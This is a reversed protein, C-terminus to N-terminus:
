SSVSDPSVPAVAVPRVFAADSLKLPKGGTRKKKSKHKKKPPEKSDDGEAARKNEDESGDESEVKVATVKTDPKPTADAAAAELEAIEQDTCFVVYKMDKLAKLAYFFGHSDAQTNLKSALENRNLPTYDPAAMLDLIKGGYKKAKENRELKAKIKDHLEETTSPPKYEALEEDSALSTALEVGKDSLELSKPSSGSVIYENDKLDKWAVCQWRKTKEGIEIRLSLESYTLTQRNNHHCSLLTLLAKTHLDNIEFPAADQAATDNNNSM